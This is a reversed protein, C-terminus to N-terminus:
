EVNTFYNDCYLSLRQTNDLEKLLAFFIGSGFALDLEVESLEIKTGKLKEFTTQRQHPIVHYVQGQAYALVFM